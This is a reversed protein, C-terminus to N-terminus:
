VNIQSFLHSKTSSFLNKRKLNIGKRDSILREKLFSKIIIQCKLLKLRNKFINYLRNINSTKKKLIILIRKKGLTVKLTLKKLFLNM